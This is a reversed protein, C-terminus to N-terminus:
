PKPEFVARRSGVSRLGRIADITILPIQSASSLCSFLIVGHTRSLDLSYAAIAQVILTVPIFLTTSIGIWAKSSNLSWMLATMQTVCATLVVWGCETGLDGYKKGLVRLLPEPSIWGAVVIPALVAMAAGVILFYLRPLHRPVDCRTFRPVLVNTFAASIATLLMALRGLATVDAIGSRNGVLTLILLTLPGQLCFFLTNPLVRISLRILERRDDANIPAEPDAYDRAWRRVTALQLWNNVAGAAAALSANMYSIALGGVMALRLMANALDLKQIRRYDGHLLPAVSFVSAVLQPLVSAVIVGSLVAIATWPAGNKALMWAAIPLSGVFAVVGFWWRLGLATHMLSGLRHRDQWVRGGISRVGIGIGLDALLSVTSQMQNVIAYLAYQEKALARIILIGAVGTFLQVWCQVFGFEVLRAAWGFAWRTRGALSRLSTPKVDLNTTVIALDDVQSAGADFPSPAVAAALTAEDSSHRTTGLRNADNKARGQPM